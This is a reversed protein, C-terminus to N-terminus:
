SCHLFGLSLILIAFYSSWLSVKGSFCMLGVVVYLPVKAAFSKFVLLITKRCSFSYLFSQMSDPLLLFHLRFGLPVRYLGRQRGSRM